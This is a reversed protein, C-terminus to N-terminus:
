WQDPGFLALRSVTAACSGMLLIGCYLTQPHRTRLASPGGSYAPCRSACCHTNRAVELEEDIRTSADTALRAHLSAGFAVGVLALRHDVELEDIARPRHLRYGDTAHVAFLRGAGLHTRGVGDLAGAVADHLTRALRATDGASVAHHGAWEAHRLDIEIPLDHHFAVHTVVARAHSLFGHARRNARTLCKKETSALLDVGQTRLRPRGVRKSKAILRNRCAHLHHHRPTGCRSRQEIDGCGHVIFGLATDDSQRKMARSM